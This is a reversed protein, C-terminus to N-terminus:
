KLKFLIEKIHKINGITNKHIYISRTIPKDIIKYNNVKIFEICKKIDIAFDEQHTTDIIYRLYKGGQYYQVNNTIKLDFYVLNKKTTLMGMNFSILNGDTDLNLQESASTFLINKFWDTAEEREKKSKFIIETGLSIFRYMDDLEVIELNKGQKLKIYLEMDLDIQEIIKLRLEIEKLLENKQKIYTNIIDEENQTKLLNITENLPILANRYKKITGLKSFDKLEFVRYGNFDRKPTLINKNEYYHLTQSSVGYLKALDGVLIGM